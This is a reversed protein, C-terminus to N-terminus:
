ITGDFLPQVLKKTEQIYWEYALDSFYRDRVFLENIDCPLVIKNCVEVNWGAEIASRREEYKSKNKTHIREDHVGPGIEALVSNFYQDTLKNARKFEGLPGAPPMVKELPKGKTSIYYRVINSVREGGWELTSNRPVKTRLFFDFMDTHNHIFESMSRGHVLAEEAAMAVVRASWNKHWPLERTGPNQEATEYAYAGIRKLSGDMKEAIYSNVDRIFMRKYLAEELELQTVQEWWRCVNRMHDMYEIPCLYTVGDTNGQIMRLGPIKILQEVLMLLLLQGNITISMTYFPDLFPSYQNNSGGYAGNLALKYAENEPTGKDYTKRTLYVSYYADCFQPGLHAPYLNNKIGLNPYFSAVDVDVLQHTDTTYVIQSEVSAHLGGTGIKYYLGDVMAGLDTFVGKTETIRKSQLFTKIRNFEEREFNVYPFIVESLDIFERETQRKVKRNNIYEYCQIDNKEMETVLITEGIKVDSMNMMNKGFTASLRERLAIQAKSKDTFLDTAKIDHWQYEILTDAQYEDLYTGVDFPLDEINFMHMNFELVKLSTAKSPNDFHHTKYLDIQEVLWDSQWVMHAFKAPGFANIFSMAKDYIEKVTIGVRWNQYIFHLIPYDFGINNFGIMRCGQQKCVDIFNVLQQIDNRRFSIEFQWRRKTDRHHFGVSYVNPDTECDYVLDGPTVGFLFDPIMSEPIYAPALASPNYCDDCVYVGDNQQMTAEANFCSQCYIGIDNM